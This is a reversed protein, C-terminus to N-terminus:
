SARDVVMTSIRRAAEGRFVEVEQLIQDISPRPSAVVNDETHKHNPFTSVLPYHPANDYRFVLDTRPSQYHYRYSLWHPEEGLLAIAESIELLSQDSFRL